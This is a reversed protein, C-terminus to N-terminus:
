TVLCRPTGAGSVERAGPPPRPARVNTHAKAPGIDGSFGAHGPHPPHRPYCPKRVWPVAMGWPRFGSAAPLAASGPASYYKPLISRSGHSGELDGEGQLGTLPLHHQTLGVPAATEISGGALTVPAQPSPPQPGWLKEPQHTCNKCHGATAWLWHRPWPGTVRELAFRPSM